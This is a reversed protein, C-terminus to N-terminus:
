MLLQFLEDELTPDTDKWWCNLKSHQCASFVQVCPGVFFLCIRGCDAVFSNISCYVFYHLTVFWWDVQQFGYQHLVLGATPSQELAQKVQGLYTQIWRVILIYKCTISHLWEWPSADARFVQTPQSWIHSKLLIWGTGADERDQKKQRDWPHSILLRQLVTKWQHSHHLATLFWSNEALRRMAKLSFQLVTSAKLRYQWDKLYIFLLTHASLATIINHRPSYDLFHM